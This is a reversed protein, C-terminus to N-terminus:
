RSAGAAGHTAHLTRRAPGAPWLQSWRILAPTTTGQHAPTARWLAGEFLSLLAIEGSLEVTAPFADAFLVDPQTLWAVAATWDAQVELDATGSASDTHLHGDIIALDISVPRYSFPSSTLNLRLVFPEELDLHIPSASPLGWCRLSQGDHTLITTEAALEDAPRSGTLDGGHATSTRILVLDVPRARDVPVPPASWSDGGLVITTRADDIRLEVILPQNSV